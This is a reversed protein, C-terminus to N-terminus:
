WPMWSAQRTTLWLSGVLILYAVLAVLFVMPNRLLYALFGKLFGLRDRTQPLAEARVTTGATQSKRTLRRVVLGITLAAALAYGYGVVHTLFSEENLNLMWSAADITVQSSRKQLLEMSIGISASLAIATLAFCSIIADMWARLTVKRTSHTADATDASVLRTLGWFALYTTIVVAVVYLVITFFYIPYITVLRGLGGPHTRFLYFVFPMAVWILAALGREIQRNQAVLGSPFLLWEFSRSSQTRGATAAGIESMMTM